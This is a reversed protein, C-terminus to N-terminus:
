CSTTDIFLLLFKTPKKKLNQKSPLTYNCWDNEEELEQAYTTKWLDKLSKVDQIIESISM